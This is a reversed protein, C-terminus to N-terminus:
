RHKSAGWASPGRFFFQFDGNGPLDAITVKKPIHFVQGSSLPQQHGGVLSPSLLKTVAQLVQATISVQHNWSGFFLRPITSYLQRIQGLGSYLHTKVAWLIQACSAIWHVCRNKDLNTSYVRVGKGGVVTKLAFFYRVYYERGLSGIVKDSSSQPTWDCGFRLTNLNWSWEWFTIPDRLSQFFVPVSWWFKIKSETKVGMRRWTGVLRSRVIRNSFVRFTKFSRAAALIFLLFTIGPVFQLNCFLFKLKTLTWSNLLM